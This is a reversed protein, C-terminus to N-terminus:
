VAVGLPLAIRLRVSLPVVGLPASTMPGVGGDLRAVPQDAPVMVEVPWANLSGPGARWPDGPLDPEGREGSDSASSLGAPALDFGRVTVEFPSPNRALLQVPLRHGPVVQDVEARVDVSLGLAHLLCSSLARRKRAALDRDDLASLARYARALDRYADWPADHNPVARRLGRDAEEGGPVDALVRPVGEFLDGELPRGWVWRFGEDRPEVVAARGFGQSRHMSRSHAAIVGVFAGRAPVFRQTSVRLDAHPNGERGEIWTSVNYVLRVPGPPSGEGARAAVREVARRTLIASALHHGHTRGAEPFRTIVVHPRFDELVAVIDELVGEGWREITEEASKSFGFDLARTFFQRAGDIQRARLLEASRLLGLSPGREEGILNQGGQGRTLSLYGVDAHETAPWRATPPARRTTPTVPPSKVVM